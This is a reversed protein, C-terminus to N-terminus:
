TFAASPAARPSNFIARANTATPITMPAQTYRPLLWFLNLWTTCAPPSKADVVAIVPRWHPVDFIPPLAASAAPVSTM